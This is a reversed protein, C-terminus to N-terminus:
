LVILKGMQVLQGDKEVTYFYSGSQAISRDLAVDGGNILARDIVRSAVDRITLWYVGGQPLNGQFRFMGTSPNPYCVLPGNVFRESLSVSLCNGPINEDLWALRTAIWAKLDELDGAYTAAFPGSEPAPGSIGLIPWKQFHRVQANQVLAGVSDIYSFIHETSLMATRYSEYTCRLENAFTSDQLLRIYWGTSYNDTPCDNIRHAWGSGNPGHVVGCEQIDKWAWDFDWVPGAKLKGGNSNKDKHFFVSKKFGDNNRAVENVLFYTIFSPVDLYKRYGVLPDAFDPSYLATELTDVFSAIYARQEPVIFEAEPYEFLFHVDFGPHDIPSFNSQFSNNADRLNQQLIYGGTLDDGAVENFNLTAIDVRGNDRKIKEGLVYIGRYVSDILVECLRTRPAYQGMARSLDFALSNRVLSRDNFNSLLVWDNEQPMGLISVNNNAGVATRTEFNFPNQPYGASSAGRVGIGVHGSYENSPDTVSTLNGPGNYKIDMLADIRGQFPIDLGQRNILVIPLESSELTVTGLDTVCLEFAGTGGGYGFVQIYLTQGPPLEYASLLSFYADGGDDDCGLQTLALCNPGTWFAVGTDNLGNAAATGVSVNGSPPIPLTYWLDSGQFNACGPDLGSGAMGSNNVVICGFADIPLAACPVGGVPAVQDCDGLGMFVTGTAPDPGDGFIFNGAPDFVQYTNENEYEGSTYSLSLQDGNCISFSATSGGGVAAFTGVPSGNVSVTLQGGNWGDGFSDGMNLVYDCCQASAGISGLLAALASLM